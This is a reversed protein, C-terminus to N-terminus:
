KRLVIGLSLSQNQQTKDAYRTTLFDGQCRLALGSNIVFDVGLGPGYVLSASQASDFETSGNLQGRGVMLHAFAQWRGFAPLTYRPGALVMWQDLDVYDAERGAHKSFSAEFSWPGKVQLAGGVTIGDLTQASGSSSLRFASYGATCEWPSPMQARGMQSICALVALAFRKRLCLSFM